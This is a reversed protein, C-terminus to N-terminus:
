RGLHYDGNGGHRKNLNMQDKVWPSSPRKDGLEGSNYKGKKGGKAKELAKSHSTKETSGHLTHNGLAESKAFIADMRKNYRQAGTTHNAM